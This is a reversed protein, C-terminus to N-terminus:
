VSRGAMYYTLRPFANVGLTTVARLRHADRAYSEPTPKRLLDCLSLPNFSVHLNKAKRPPIPSFLTRERGSMGGYGWLLRV